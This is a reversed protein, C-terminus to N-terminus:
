GDNERLDFGDAELRKLAGRVNVASVVFQPLKRYGRNVCECVGQEFDALLERLFRRAAEPRRRALLFLVWGSATAWYAGNQYEGPAVPVLLKEWTEGAPLHRIQGSYVYSGLHNLLYAEVKRRVKDGAPFAAYLLYANGWIDIQRCDGSAAMFVGTGEDFLTDLNEEVKRARARYAAARETMGCSGYLTCLQECARWYLISEMFLEGTKCVTDTFGYPSHPRGPQNYVLGGGSLPMCAMGRDLAAEWRRFLGDAREPPLRRICHYVASVLFPANDLNAEGVPAGDAGAAYVARGWADIRDPLWGDERQGRLIFEICREVAPAEMLDGCYETMYAFDRVWLADYGGVGDPTFLVTGDCAPKRCRQLLRRCIETMVSLAQKM